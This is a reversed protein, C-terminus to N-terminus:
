GEANFGGDLTQHIFMEHNFTVIKVSVKPHNMGQAASM